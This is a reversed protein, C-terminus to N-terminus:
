AKSAISIRVVFFSCEVHHMYFGLCLIHQQLHMKPRVRFLRWAHQVSLVALKGYGEQAAGARDCCLSLAIHLWLDKRPMCVYMHQDHDLHQGAGDPRLPQPLAKQMLGFGMGIFSGFTFAATTCHKKFAALSQQM